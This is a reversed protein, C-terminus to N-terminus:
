RVYVQEKCHGQLVTKGKYRVSFDGTKLFDQSRESIALVVRDALKRGYNGIIKDFEDIDQAVMSFPAHEVSNKDVLKRITVGNVRL